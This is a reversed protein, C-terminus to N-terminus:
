IPNLRLADPNVVGSDVDLMRQATITMLRANSQRAVLALPLSVAFLMAAIVRVRPDGSM